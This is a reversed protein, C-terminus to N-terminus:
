EKISNEYQFEAYNAAMDALLAAVEPNSHQALLIAAAREAFDKNHFEELFVDVSNAKRKTVIRDFGEYKVDTVHEFVGNSKEVCMTVAVMWNDTHMDIAAERAKQERETKDSYRDERINDYDSM